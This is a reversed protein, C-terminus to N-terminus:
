EWNEGYVFFNSANKPVDLYLTQTVFYKITKKKM